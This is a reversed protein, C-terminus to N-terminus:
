WDLLKGPKCTVITAADAPEGFWTRIRFTSLVRQFTTPDYRGGYVIRRTSDVIYWAPGTAGYRSFVSSPDTLSTISDIAFPFTMRNEEQFAKLKEKSGTYAVVALVGINHRIDVYLRDVHSLQVHCDECDFPMLWLMAGHRIRAFESFTISIGTPARVTFDPALTGPALFRTTDRRDRVVANAPLAFTESAIPQDLTFDSFVDERRARDADVTTIRHVLTDPGVYIRSVYRRADNPWWLGSTYHWEIMTYSNGKWQTPGVYRLAILNPGRLKSSRWDHDLAPHDNAFLFLGTLERPDSDSANFSEDVRWDRWFISDTARYRSYRGDSNAIRLTPQATDPAGKFQWTTELRYSAPRQMSITTTMANTVAGDKTRLETTHVLRITKLARVKEEVDRLVNIAQTDVTSLCLIAETRSPPGQVAAVALATIISATGLM